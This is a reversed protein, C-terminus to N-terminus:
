EEKRAVIDFKFKLEDKIKLAGGAISVPKIGFSSQRLVSEGSIRLMTGMVQVRADFSHPQTIGRLQLNGSVSAQLLDSGLSQVKVQKSEFLAQPFHEVDLVEGYMAAKLKALDDRKMEDQPELSATTLSFHVVTNEFTEPVFSVEGTYDRIAITPDHGFSSLFGTAFAQVTFRGVTKDFVYRVTAFGRQTGAQMVIDM